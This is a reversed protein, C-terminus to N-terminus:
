NCFGDDMWVNGWPCSTGGPACVSVSACNNCNYDACTWNHGGYSITQGPSYALCNSQSYPTACPQSRDVGADIPACSVPPGWPQGTSPGNDPDHNTEPNVGMSYFRAIYEKGDFSVRDGAHYAMTPMWPPSTCTGVVGNGAGGSGGIEGRGAAGSAGASAMGAGGTSTVDGGGM